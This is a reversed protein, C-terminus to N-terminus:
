RAPTAPSPAAPAPTVAPEGKARYRNPPLIPVRHWPRWPRYFPDGFPYVYRLREESRIADVQTQQMYDLVEDPVGARHLAILESAPKDYVARGSRLTDVIQLGGQGSKVMGVIEDNSYLRMATTACGTMAAVVFVICVALVPKLTRSSNM